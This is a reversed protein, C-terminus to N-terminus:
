GGYCGHKRVLGMYYDYSEPAVDDGVSAQGIVLGGERGLEILPLVHAEIEKRDGRPLV